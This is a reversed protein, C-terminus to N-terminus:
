LEREAANSPQHNVGPLGAKPNEAAQSRYAARRFLYGLTEEGDRAIFVGEIPRGESLTALTCEVDNQNDEVLLLTSSYDRDDVV